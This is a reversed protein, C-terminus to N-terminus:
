SKAASRKYHCSPAHKRYSCYHQHYAEALWFPALSHLQTAPKILKKLAQQAVAQQDNNRYFIASRYQTGLDPGQGDVQSPDHIDFFLAYLKETSTITPNFFVAVAEAHGTKGTCVQEYTPHDPQGGTYGVSTAIVGPEQEFFYEVGWFCGGAVIIYDFPLQGHNIQEFLTAINVFRISLSNVCHRLNKDTHHEGSFVHGLHGDCAQCRIEIRRGDPDPLRKVAGSIEDDFSPWGCGSKFKDLSRYLPANCRRCIYVGNLYHSDYEGSFKPETGHHEIIHAEAPTLPNWTSM